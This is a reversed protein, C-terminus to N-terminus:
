VMEEAVQEDEQIDPVILLINYPIISSQFYLFQQPPPLPVVRPRRKGNM